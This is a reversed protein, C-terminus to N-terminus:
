DRPIVRMPIESNFLIDEAVSGLLKETRSRKRIGVVLEDADVDEVLDFIDESM